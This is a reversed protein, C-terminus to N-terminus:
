GVGAGGAGTAEGDTRRAGVAERVVGVFRERNESAVQEVRLARATGNVLHVLPVPVQRIQMGLMLARFSLDNDAWYAPERYEQDWPGLGRDLRVFDRVTGAVCWGDLYPHHHGDIPDKTERLEAGVLTGDVVHERISDLWGKGAARVDNNLFVVMGDPVQQRAWRFGLNCAPSFGYNGDLRMTLVKPHKVRPPVASGNDVILARDGDRLPGRELAEVWGRVYEPHNWWPTIM